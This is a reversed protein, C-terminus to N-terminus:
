MNLQCSSIHRCIRHLYLSLGKLILHVKKEEIMAVTMLVGLNSVESKDKIREM